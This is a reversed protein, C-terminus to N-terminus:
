IHIVRTKLLRDHLGRRAPDVLIPALGILAFSGLTGLLARLAARLHGPPAGDRDVVRLRFMMKGLTQGTLGTFFSAYVLAFVALFGGLYPWAPLLGALPVRAARAAFYIVVAAAAGVAMADLSAAQVRELLQAPREVAEPAPEEPAPEDVEGTTWRPGPADLGREAIDLVRPGSAPAVPEEAPPVSPPEFPRLPLDEVEFRSREGSSAELRGVGLPLDDPQPPELRPRPAESVM